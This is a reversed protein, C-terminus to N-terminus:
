DEPVFRVAAGGRPKLELKLIEGRRFTRVSKRIDRAGDGDSYIAASYKRGAELVDLPLEVVRPSNNTLVGLHWTSGKRRAIAAFEGPRGDIVRTDDWVTPLTRFWEM